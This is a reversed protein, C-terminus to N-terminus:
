MMLAFAAQKVDNPASKAVDNGAVLGAALVRLLDEDGHNDIAHQYVADRLADITGYAFNVTGVAVKCETAVADRTVADWGDRKIIRLAGDLLQQRREDNTMRENKAM